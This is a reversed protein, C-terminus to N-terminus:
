TPQYASQCIPLYISLYGQQKLIIPDQSEIWVHFKLNAHEGTQMNELNEPNITVQCM